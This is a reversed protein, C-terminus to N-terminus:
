FGRVSLDLRAEGAANEYRELHEGSAPILHPELQVDKSIEEALKGFLDRVEDHRQHIYGEKMCSMVHHVTFRKGYACLSPLYKLDLRYRLRIANHFERKNLVFNETKLPMYSLWSSAGKMTAVDNARKQEPTM